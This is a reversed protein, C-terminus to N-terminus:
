FLKLLKIKDHYTKDKKKKKSPYELGILRSMVLKNPVLMVWNLNLNKFIKIAPLPGVQLTAFSLM